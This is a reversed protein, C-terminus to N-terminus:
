RLKKKIYKVISPLSTGDRYAPARVVPASASTLNTDSLKENTANFLPTFPRAVYSHRQWNQISACKVPIIPSKYCMVSITSVNTDVENDDTYPRMNAETKITSQKSTSPMSMLNSLKSLDVGHKTPTVLRNDSARTGEYPNQTVPCLETSVELFLSSSLNSDTLDDSDVASNNEHHVIDSPGSVHIYNKPKDEIFSVVGNRNMIAWIEGDEIQQRRKPTLDMNMLAKKRVLYHQQEDGGRAVDPQDDTAVDSANIRVAGLYPSSLCAYTTINQSSIGTQSVTGNGRNLTKLSCNKSGVNSIPHMLMASLTQLEASLQM